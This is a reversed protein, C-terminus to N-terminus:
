AISGDNGETNDRFTGGSAMQEVQEQRWDIAAAVEAPSQGNSRFVTTIFRDKEPSAPAEPVDAVRVIGPQSGLCRLVAHQNPLDQCTRIWARMADSETWREVGILRPRPFSIVLELPVPGKIRWDTAALGHVYQSVEVPEGTDAAHVYLRPVNSAAALERVQQLADGPVANEHSVARHLHPCLRLPHGFPDRIPHRWTVRPYEGTTRDMPEVDVTARALRQDVGAALSAAVLRADAYGLRFFAQVAANALLAERLDDSLQGLHQCACLLRLNQSRAVTAIEALADGVFREVTSLEDVALVVPVPGPSRLATRFLLNTLLGGLLRVGEDGLTTRDLHVLVLGQRCSLTPLNLTTRRSCLLSRLVGNRLLERVKNLTPGVAERRTSLSWKGFEHLFFQKAEEFAFPDSTRVPVRLLAERYDDRALFRVLEFLSLEHSAIIICANTLLDQLRPGWSTTSRALVAVFDGAAEAAPIGAAFPNWGPMAGRKPLLLTVQDPSLGLKRSHDLLHEVTEGKPDLVVVSHGRRLQEVILHEALRSKGTGTSGCVFTHRGLMEDGITVAGRATTAGKACPLGLQRAMYARLWPRGMHPRLPPAMCFLRAEESARGPLDVQKGVMISDM